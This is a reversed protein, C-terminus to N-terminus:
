RIIACRDIAIIKIIDIRCQRLYLGVSLMVARRGM